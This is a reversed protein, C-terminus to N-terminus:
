CVAGYAYPVDDAAEARVAEAVVRVDDAGNREMGIARPLLHDGGGVVVRYADEVQPVALADRHEARVHARGGRNRKTGIPVDHGGTAAVLYGRELRYGCQLSHKGEHTRTYKISANM